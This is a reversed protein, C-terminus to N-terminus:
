STCVKTLEKAADAAPSLDPTKDGSNSAARVNDVAEELHDLAKDVDADESKDRIDDLNDEIDDLSKDAKSPNMAADQAAEQMEDVNDHIADATKVCDVAKDVPDCGVLGVGAPVAILATIIATATRRHRAAM